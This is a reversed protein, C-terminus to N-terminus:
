LVRLLLLRRCGFVSIVTTRQSGKLIALYGTTIQCDGAGYGSSAPDHYYFEHLPLHLYQSTNVDQGCKVFDNIYLPQITHPQM